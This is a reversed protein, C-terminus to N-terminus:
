IMFVIVSLLGSPFVRPHKVAPGLATLVRSGSAATDTGTRADFIASLTTNLRLSSGQRAPFGGKQPNNESEAHSAKDTGLETREPFHANITGWFGQNIREPFSV